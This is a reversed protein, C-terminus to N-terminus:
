RRVAVAIERLNSKNWISKNAIINLKFLDVLCIQLTLTAVKRLLFEMVIKMVTPKSCPKIM